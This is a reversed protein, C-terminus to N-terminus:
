AAPRPGDTQAPKRGRREILRHGADTGWYYAHFARYQPEWLVRRLHTPERRFRKSLATYNEGSLLHFAQMARREAHSIRWEGTRRRRWSPPRRLVPVLALARQLESWFASAEEHNM